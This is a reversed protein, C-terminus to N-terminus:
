VMDDQCYKKGIGSSIQDIDVFFANQYKALEAGLFMNLREVFHMVNRLDLRPQFRGSRTRNRSSSDSFL